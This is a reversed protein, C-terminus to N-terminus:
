IVGGVSFKGKPSMYGHCPLRQMLFLGPYGLTKVGVSMVELQGCERWGTYDLDEEPDIGALARLLSKRGVPVAEKRSYSFANNTLHPFFPISAGTGSAEQRPFM